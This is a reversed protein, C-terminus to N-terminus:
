PLNCAGVKTVSTGVEHSGLALAAHPAAFSSGWYGLLGRGRSGQPPTLNPGAVVVYSESPAAV